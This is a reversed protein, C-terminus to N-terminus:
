ERAIGREGRVGGASCTFVEGIRDERSRNRRKRPNWGANTKNTTIKKKGPQFQVARDLDRRRSTHRGRRTTAKQTGPHQNHHPHRMMFYGRSSDGWNDITYFTVVEKEESAQCGAAKLKRGWFV